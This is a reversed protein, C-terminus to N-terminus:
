GHGLGGFPGPDDPLVIVHPDVAAVRRLTQSLRAIVDIV